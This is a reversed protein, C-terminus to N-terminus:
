RIHEIVSDFLEDFDYPKTFFDVAGLSACRKAIEVDAYATLIIVPVQMDYEEMKELVEDGDMGPMKIGMIVLDYSNSKLKRLAEEGSYALDTRFKLDQFEESLSRCLNEDDDVLLIIPQPHLM